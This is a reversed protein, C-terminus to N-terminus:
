RQPIGPIWAKLREAVTYLCHPLYDFRVAKMVQGDATGFCFRSQGSKPEPVTRLKSVTCWEGDIRIELKGFARLRRMLERSSLSSPDNITTLEQRKKMSHYAGGGRQTEGTEGNQIMELLNRIQKAAAVAKLMDMDLASQGTSVPVAGEILIPGEDFEQTMHHFTYGTQMEGNYISWATVKRGRYHPLLGNHYNVAHDFTELLESGFRQLCFFSLASVPAPIKQLESIFGADNFDGGPPVNLEFHYRRAAHKLNIPLPFIRRRTLEPSFLSQIWRLLCQATHLLLTAAYPQSKPLCIAKLKMDDRSAMAALVSRILASPENWSINSTFIVMHHM